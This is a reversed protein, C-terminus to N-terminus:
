QRMKLERLKCIKNWEWESGGEPLPKNSFPLQIKLKMHICDLVHPFPLSSFFSLLSFLYPPPPSSRSSGVNDQRKEKKEDRREDRDM